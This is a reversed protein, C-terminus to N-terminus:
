FLKLFQKERESSPEVIAPLSNFQDLSISLPQMGERNAWLVKYSGLNMSELFHDGNSVSLTVSRSNHIFKWFECLWKLRLSPNEAHPLGYRKFLIHVNSV